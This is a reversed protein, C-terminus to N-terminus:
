SKNRQLNHLSINHMPVGALGAAICTNTSEIMLADNIWQLQVHDEQSGEALSITFSYKGAPLLPMTFEFEALYVDGKTLCIVGQMGILRARSNLTNDGLLTLGKDNKLLFGVIPSQIQAEALAKITLIVREGGRGTLLPKGTKSENLTVSQVSAKGLGFSEATLLCERFQTVHLLNASPSSNIVESRYDQWDEMRISASEKCEPHEGRGGYEPMSNSDVDQFNNYLSKTYENIVRKPTNLMVQMGKNLLLAQDCLSSLASADHSVFLLSGESRFRNIFRMCKQTFFADGVALAEDVILIDASVNAIVAFAMRVAMGSSYTKVPQEAFEGIDAFSLIDELRNDTEEKSLGMMSANLYVNEIGTFEPNFGSGLELLAAIRGKTQIKGETPTLTGCILQLLTSKGSGNRGIIGLSEGRKVEFNLDRLAWFERFFQRRGGWAAQKLRDKPSGYIQYCKGLDKCQIVTERDPTMSKESSM